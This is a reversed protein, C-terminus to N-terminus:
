LYVLSDWPCKYAGCVSMSLLVRLDLFRLPSSTHSQAQVLYYKGNMKRIYRLSCRLWKMYTLHSIFLHLSSAKIYWLAPFRRIRIKLMRIYPLIHQVAASPSFPHSCPLCPQISANWLVRTPALMGLDLFPSSRSGQRDSSLCSWVTTLSVIRSVALTRTMSNIWEVLNRNFGLRLAFQLAEEKSQTM